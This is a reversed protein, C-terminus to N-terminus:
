KSKEKIAKEWALACALLPDDNEIYKDDSDMVVDELDSDWVNWCLFETKGDEDISNSKGFDWRDPWENL